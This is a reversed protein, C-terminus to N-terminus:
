KKILDILADYSHSFDHGYSHEYGKLEEIMPILKEPDKETTHQIYDLDEFWNYYFASAKGYSNDFVLCPTHTIVCFIMGHLRDTVVVESTKIQDLKLDVLWSRESMRINDLPSATSSKGEHYDKYPYTTDTQEVEDDVNELNDTLRELLKDSTVKENDVRMIFLVGDRDFDPRDPNLSLVMDATYIANAKFDRKLYDLSQTDRAILTLNPNKDYAEQSKRLEERGQKTDAFYVSQPFSFTKNNVFTSFVKRRPVEHETHLSGINGGGAYAIIDDSRLFPLLEEIAQNTQAEPIEIYTMDPFNKAFFRRQAENIAQDGLNNYTPIGFVYIRQPEEPLQKILDTLSIEELTYAFNLSTIDPM